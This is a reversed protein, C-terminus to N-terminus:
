IKMLACQTRNHLNRGVSDYKVYTDRLHYSKRYYINQMFHIIENNDCSKDLAEVGGKELIVRRYVTTTFSSVHKHLTGSVKTPNQNFRFRRSM